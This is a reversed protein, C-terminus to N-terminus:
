KLSFKKRFVSLGLLGSLMLLISSPEPVPSTFGSAVANFTNDYIDFAQAGPTGNGLWNFSVVFPDALSAGNTLSLADYVGATPLSNDPQFTLIDWNTNVSPAPDQLNSYLQSDFYISFGSDINFTYDSVTYTYQWLDEGIVADSLDTVEYSIEIASASYSAFMCSFAFLTKSFKNLNM